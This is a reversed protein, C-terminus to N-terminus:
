GAGEQLTGQDIHDGDINWGDITTNCFEQM